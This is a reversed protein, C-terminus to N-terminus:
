NFTFSFYVRPLILLFFVLFFCFIIMFNKRVNIIIQKRKEKLASLYIDKDEITIETKSYFFLLKTKKLLPKPKTNFYMLVLYHKQQIKSALKCIDVTLYTKFVFPVVRTLCYDDETM